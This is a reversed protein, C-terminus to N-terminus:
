NIPNDQQTCVPNIVVYQYSNIKQNFYDNIYNNIQDDEMELNRFKIINKVDPSMKELHDEYQHYELINNHIDKIIDIESEPLYYIKLNCDSPLKGYDANRPLKEGDYTTFTRKKTIKRTITGFFSMTESYYGGFQESYFDGHSNVFQWVLIGQKVNQCFNKFKQFNKQSKENFSLFLNNLENKLEDSNLLKNNFNIM